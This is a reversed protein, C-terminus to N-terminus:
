QRPVRRLREVAADLTEQRKAFCLRLLHDNSSEAEPDEYFAAVPIATVGFETTLQRAYALECASSVARYDALLFFTGASPLPKLATTM